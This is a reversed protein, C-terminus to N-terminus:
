SAWREVGVEVETWIADWSTLREEGLGLRAWGERAFAVSDAQYALCFRVLAVDGEVVVESPDWRERRGGFGLLHALIEGRGVLWPDGSNDRWRADATFAEAGRDPDGTHGERLDQLLGRLTADDM